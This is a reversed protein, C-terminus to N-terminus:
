ASIHRQAPTLTRSTKKTAQEPENMSADSDDVEHRARKRLRGRQEMERKNLEPDNIMEADDSDSDQALVREALRDKGAEIEAITKRVKSRSRIREEDVDYGKARLGEVMQTATIKKKVSETRQKAKMKHEMKRRAKNQRVEKLSTKLEALTVGSEDDDSMHVGAQEAEIKLLQEEERELEALKRTIDPDYFDMVNSGNFFEPWSDYRWEEKELIYHEEPPVMFNGAGGFEEQLEKITPGEKKVGRIVTDPILAPRAM